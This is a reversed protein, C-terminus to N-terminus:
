SRQRRPLDVECDLIKAITELHRYAWLPDTIDIEQVRGDDDHPQTKAQGIEIQFKLWRSLNQKSCGTERSIEALSLPKGDRLLSLSYSTAYAEGLSRGSGFRKVLVALLDVLQKDPNM